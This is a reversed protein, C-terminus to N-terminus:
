GGHGVALQVWRGRFGPTEQDPKGFAMLTGAFVLVVVGTGWKTHM